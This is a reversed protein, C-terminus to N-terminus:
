VPHAKYIEQAKKLICVKKESVKPHLLDEIFEEADEGELILGLEIPRAM